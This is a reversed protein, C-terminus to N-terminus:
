ADYRRAEIWRDVDSTRYRVLRGFRVCPVRLRRLTRQSVKLYAAVEKPTMLDM